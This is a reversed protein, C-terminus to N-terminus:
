YSAMKICRSNNVQDLLQGIKNDWKLRKCFFFKRIDVMFETMGWFVFLFFCSSVFLIKINRVSNDHGGNFFPLFLKFPAVFLPRLKGKCRLPM